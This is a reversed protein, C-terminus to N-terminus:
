IKKLLAKLHPQLSNLNTAMEVVYSLEGNALEFVRSIERVQGFCLCSDKSEASVESITSTTKVYIICLSPDTLLLSTM